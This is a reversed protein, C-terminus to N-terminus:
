KFDVNATAEDIILIKTKKLIARALCFLQKQGVSINSGGSSINHDLRGDMEAVVGKLNVADLANWLDFDDHKLFPDLNLRVSGSFLVPEQPIITLKCRLDNLSLDRINVGDIIINGKPEYMRFITQFFSSKGAGTRGVIGIKESAGINVSVKKLVNPLKEDYALSVNSFTIEGKSPWNVPPKKRGEYLPESPLQTYEMIREVSTMLNEIYTNLVICWQFLDFLQLLYCMVLGIKGTDLGIHDKFFIYGFLTTIAYVSCLFDLRLGFWRHAGLFGFFARSHNDNHTEFERCLIQETGSARIIAIGEITNNTHVFVPSRAINDLRKLERASPVFYEKILFFIVGLPLLPFAMQWKVVVPVALAGLIVM